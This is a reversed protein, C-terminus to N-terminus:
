NAAAEVAATVAGMVDAWVPSGATVVEFHGANDVPTHYVADGSALAADVFQQVHHPPVLPDEIGHIHWHPVGLPLLAHPSAQAYRQALADPPGGVLDGPAGRCIGDALASALNGIGAVSVVAGPAAVPEARLESDAPLRWLGALWLALHGGASHGVVTVPRPDCGWEVSASLLAAYGRQVDTFTNPWGGEGGLRRYELNLVMLGSDALARAFQGMPRLGFAHQWCGGHLLLVRPARPADPLYLEGYQQEHPGYPVRRDPRREPLAVYDGPTMLSTM